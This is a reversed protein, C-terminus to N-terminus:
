QVGPHQVESKFGGVTVDEMRTYEKQKQKGTYLPRDALKNNM